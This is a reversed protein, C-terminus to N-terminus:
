ARSTACIASEVGERTSLAVVGVVGGLTIRMKSDGYWVRGEVGVSRIVCSASASLMCSLWIVFVATVVSAM